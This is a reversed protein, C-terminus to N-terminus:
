RPGRGGPPDATLSAIAPRHQVRGSTPGGQRKGKAVLKHPSHCDKSIADKHWAGRTQFEQAKVDEIASYTCESCVFVQQGRNPGGSLTYKGMLKRDFHMLCGACRLYSVPQSTLTTM